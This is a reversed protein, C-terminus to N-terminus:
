DYGSCVVNWSKITGNEPQCRSVLLHTRHFFIEMRLSERVDRRQRQAFSLVQQAIIVFQSIFIFSSVCSHISIWCAALFSCHSVFSGLWLSALHNSSQLPHIGQFSTVYNRSNSSIEVINETYPHDYRLHSLLYQFTNWEHAAGILKKWRFYERFFM